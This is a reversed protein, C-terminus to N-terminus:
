KTILIRGEYHHRIDIQCNAQDDGKTETVQFNRQFKLHLIGAMITVDAETCSRQTQNVSQKSKQESHQWKKPKGETQRM